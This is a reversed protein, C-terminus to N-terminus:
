VTYGMTEIGHCKDPMLNAMALMTTANTTDHTAHCDGSSIRGGVTTKRNIIRGASGRGSVTAGQGHIGLGGGFSM